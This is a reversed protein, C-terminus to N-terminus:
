ENEQQSSKVLVEYMHKFNEIINDEFNSNLSILLGKGIAPIVQDMHVDVIFAKEALKSDVHAGGSKNAALKIFEKITFEHVKNNLSLKYVVQELWDDLGIPSSSYDFMSYKPVFSVGDELVIFEKSIPYLKPEDYVKKILSNDVVTDKRISTDCLMIRLQVAIVNNFEKIKFYEVMILSYEIIKLIEKFKTLEGKASRKFILPQESM